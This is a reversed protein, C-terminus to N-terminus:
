LTLSTLFRVKESFITETPYSLLSITSELLPKGDCQTLPIKRSVPEVADGIGIDIQIKDGMETKLIVRYGPYGRHPQYADLYGM